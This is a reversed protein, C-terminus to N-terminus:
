HAKKQGGYSTGSLQINMSQIRTGCINHTWHMWQCHISLLDGQETHFLAIYVIPPSHQPLDRTLLM